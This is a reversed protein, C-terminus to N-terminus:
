MGLSENMVVMAELNVPPLNGSERYQEHVHSAIVHTCKERANDGPEGRCAHVLRGNFGRFFLRLYFCVQM